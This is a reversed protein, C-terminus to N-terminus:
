MTTITGFYMIVDCIYYRASIRKRYLMCGKTIELLVKETPSKVINAKAIVDKTDMYDGPTLIYKALCAWLGNM